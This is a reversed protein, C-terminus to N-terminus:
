IPWFRGTAPEGNCDNMPGSWESVQWITLVQLEKLWIWRATPVSNLKVEPSIKTIEKNHIKHAAKIKNPKAPV